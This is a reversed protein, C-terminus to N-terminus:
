LLAPNPLDLSCAEIQSEIQALPHYHHVYFSHKGHELTTDTVSDSRSGLVSGLLWLLDLLLTTALSSLCHLADFYGTHSLTCYLM